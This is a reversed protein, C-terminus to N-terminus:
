EPSKLPSVLYVGAGAQPGTQRGLVSRAKGLRRAEEASLVQLRPVAQLRKGATAGLISVAPNGLHVLANDRFQYVGNSTGAYFGGPFGVLDYVTLGSPIDAVKVTTTGNFRVFGQPTAAWISGTDREALAYITDGPTQISSQSAVFASWGTGNYRRLGRISFLDIYRPGGDGVGLWVRSGSAKIGTIRKGWVAVSDWVAPASGIASTNLRFVGQNSIGWVFGPTTAIGTVTDTSGRPSPIVTSALTDGSGSRRMHTVGQSSGAWADSDNASWECTTTFDKPFTYLRSNWRAQYGGPMLLRGSKTVCFSLHMETEFNWRASDYHALYGGIVANGNKSGLVWPRSLGDLRIQFVRDIRPPGYAPQVMAAEELTMGQAETWQALRPDAAAIEGIYANNMRARVEEAFDEHGSSRVLYGMACPVGEADIFYPVLRDPFDRNQPFEGRTWYEHLDDLRALRNRRQSATLGETPRARLKAEVAALHRRIRPPEPESLDVRAEYYSRPQPYSLYAAAPMAALAFLLFAKM